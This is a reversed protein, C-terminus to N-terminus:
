GLVQIQARQSRRVTLYLARRRLRTQLVRQPPSVCYSATRRGLGEPRRRNRRMEADSTTTSIRKM